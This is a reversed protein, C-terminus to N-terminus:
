CYIIIQNASILIFRGESDFGIYYSGTTTTLSKGTFTGNFYYLGVSNNTCCSISLFGCKDFVMSTVESSSCVNFSRIINKNVIVLVISQITGVYLENNYESFSIPNYSSVSVNYLLNLNLDFVQYYKYSLPAAYILNETSNFYIDRYSASENQEILINLYKDTKWIKNQGTIYLSSNIAVMYKPNSFTKMTVYVYNDDLLFITHTNIDIIYYSTNFDVMMGFGVLRSFSIGNLSTITRKITYNTFVNM